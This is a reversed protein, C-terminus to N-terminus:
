ITGAIRAAELKQLLRATPGPRGRWNRAIEVFDARFTPWLASIVISVDDPSEIGSAVLRAQADVLTQPDLPLRDILAPTVSPLTGILLELLRGFDGHLRRGVRSKLAESLDEPSEIISLSALRERETANMLSEVTTRVGNLQDRLIALLGTQEVNPEGSPPKYRIDHELENWIHDGLTAVQVECFVGDLNVFSSDSALMEDRLTAIRHRAQYGGPDLFDKRFRPENPVTFLEEIVRCAPDMDGQRYLLVRVGALDLVNPGFEREFAAFEHTQSDATLKGRLSEPDKARFTPVHPIASALLQGSLLRAVLSSMKDFRDRERLYKEVLTAIQLESLPL